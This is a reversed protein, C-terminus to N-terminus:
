LRFVIEKMGVQRGADNIISASFCDRLRQITEKNVYGIQELIEAIIIPLNEEAGDEVKVAFALKEKRLGFCYVGKAGGKAVINPDMLLLSCIANTGSVMLPYENMLRTCEVVSQVLDEDQILDPCAMRLFTAALYQLPMAFVPVGCGDVGTIINDEPYGSVVSLAKKIMLQAPSDVRWYERLDCGLERCLLLISLHKGFCNHYIKRRPQDKRMLDEAAKPNLPYAPLMICNDETLGTKMMISELAQIHFPEGRHSGCFITFEEDTLGYKEKLGFPIGPLAQVPKSASRFYVLTEPEGVQYAITGKDDLGCIFGRNINELVSGRYEKVLFGSM